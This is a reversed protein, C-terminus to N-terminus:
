VVLEFRPRGPDARHQRIDVIEKGHVIELAQLLEGGAEPLPVRQTARRPAGSPSAALARAQQRGSRPSRDICSMLWRVTGAPMSAVHDASLSGSVSLAHM